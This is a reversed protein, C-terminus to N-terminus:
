RRKQQTHSTGLARKVRKILDERGSYKHHTPFNLEAFEGYLKVAYKDYFRAAEEPSNCIKRMRNEKPGVQALWQPKPKIFYVGRFGTTNNMQLRRSACNQAPTCPKLNCRRNDLTDHNRHHVAKFGVKGAILVNMRIGPDNQEDGSAVAYYGKIAPSWAATWPRKMLWKYDSKYVLAYQGQTLPILRCPTREIVFTKNIIPPRRNWLM